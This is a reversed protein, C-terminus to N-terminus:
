VKDDKVPNVSSVEPITTIFEPIALQPWPHYIESTIETPFNRKPKKETITGNKGFEHLIEKTIDCKKRWTKHNGM